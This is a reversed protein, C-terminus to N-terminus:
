DPLMWESRVLDSRKARTRHLRWALTVPGFALLIAALLWTWFTVGLFIGARASHDWILVVIILSTTAIFMSLFVIVAGRSPMLTEDEEILLPPPQPQPTSM